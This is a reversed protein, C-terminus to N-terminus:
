EPNTHIRARHTVNGDSALRSLLVNFELTLNLSPFARFGVGFFHLSLFVASELKDLNVFMFYLRHCDLM